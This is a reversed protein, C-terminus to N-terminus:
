NPGKRMNFCALISCRFLSCVGCVMPLLASRLYGHGFDDQSVQPLKTSAAPSKVLRRARVGHLFHVGEVHSPPV